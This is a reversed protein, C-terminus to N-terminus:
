KEHLYVTFISGIGKQSKVCIENDTLRIIEKVQALGLGSGESKHPTDEQYFKEFIYRQGTETIGIGHDEIEFVIDSNNRYLLIRIDGNQNSYKVANNILNSWVRELLLKAGSYTIEEMQLDFKINKSEWINEQMLLIQRIQEDLRFTTIEPNLKNNELKSLMLIDSTLDALKRSNNLIHHICDQREENELNPTQLYMAYGEISALPTKFEHSLNSIFDSRLTSIGSLENAMVNFNDFVDKIENIKGNYETQINLDGSSLKKTAEKIQEIPKVLGKLLFYPAVVQLNFLLILISYLMFWGNLNDHFRYHVVLIGCGIFTCIALAIYFMVSVCFSSANNEIYKNSKM